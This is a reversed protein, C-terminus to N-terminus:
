GLDYTLQGKSQLGSGYNTDGLVRLNPKHTFSPGINCMSLDAFEPDASLVNEDTVPVIRHRGSLAELVAPIVGTVEHSAPFAILEPEHRALLVVDDTTPGINRRGLHLFSKKGAM